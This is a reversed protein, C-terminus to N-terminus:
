STKLEKSSFAFLLICMLLNLLQADKIKETRTRANAVILSKAKNVRVNARLTQASDYATSFLKKQLKTRKLSYEPPNELPSVPFQLM